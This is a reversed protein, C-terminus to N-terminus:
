LIKVNIGDFNLSSSFNFLTYVFRFGHKFQKLRPFTYDYRTEM